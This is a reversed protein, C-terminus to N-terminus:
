EQVVKKMKNIFKLVENCCEPCVEKHHVYRLNECSAGNEIDISGVLKFSTEKDCIDCYYKEIIKTM